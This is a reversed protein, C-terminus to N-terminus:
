PIATSAYVHILYSIFKPTSALVHSYLCLVCLPFIFSIQTIQYLSSLLYTMNWFQVTLLNSNYGPITDLAPEGSHSHPINIGKQSPDGSLSSCVQCKSLCTYRTSIVPAEGMSQRSLGWDLGRHKQFCFLSARTYTRPSTLPVSLRSCAWCAM